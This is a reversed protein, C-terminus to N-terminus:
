RKADWWLALICTLAAIFFAAAMMRLMATAIVRDAKQWQAHRTISTKIATQQALRDANAAAIAQEQIQAILRARRQHVEVAGDLKPHQTSSDSM